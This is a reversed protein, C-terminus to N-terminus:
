ASISAQWLTGASHFADHEDVRSSSKQLYKNVRRLASHGLGSENWGWRCSNNLVLFPFLEKWRANGKAACPGLYFNFVFNRCCKRILFGIGPFNDNKKKTSFKWILIVHGASDDDTFSKFPMRHIAPRFFINWRWPASPATAADASNALQLGFHHSYCQLHRYTSVEGDINFQLNSIM